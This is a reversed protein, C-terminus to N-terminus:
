RCINFTMVRLPERPTPTTASHAARMSAGCGASILLALPLAALSIRVSVHQAITHAM